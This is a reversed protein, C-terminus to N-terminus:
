ISATSHAVDRDRARKSLTALALVSKWRTTVRQACRGGSAIVTRSRKRQLARQQEREPVVHGM